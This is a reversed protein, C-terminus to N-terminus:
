TVLFYQWSVCNKIVDNYKKAEIETVCKRMAEQDCFDPM